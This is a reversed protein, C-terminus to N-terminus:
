VGGDTKYKYVGRGHKKGDQWQGEYVDGNAYTYVGYGNKVDNKYEGEYKGGSAQMDRHFGSTGARLTM